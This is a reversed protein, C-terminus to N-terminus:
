AVTTGPPHPMQTPNEAVPPGTDWLLVPSHHLQSSRHTFGASRWWETGLLWPLPCCERCLLAVSCPVLTCGKAEEWGQARHNCASIRPESIHALIEGLSFVCLTLM